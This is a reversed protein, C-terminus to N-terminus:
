NMHMKCTQASPFVELRDEEISVGCSSCKGYQGNEIDSLSKNVESLNAELTATEGANLEFNEIADAVDSEDAQDTNLDSEVPEWDGKIEPNKRAIASLLKELRMKEALLREKQKNIDIM